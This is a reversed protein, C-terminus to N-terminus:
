TNSLASLVKTVPDYSYPKGQSDVKDIQITTQEDSKWVLKLILRVRNENVTEYSKVESVDVRAVENTGKIFVLQHEIANVTVKKDTDSGLGLSCGIYKGGTVKGYKTAMLLSLKKLFGM